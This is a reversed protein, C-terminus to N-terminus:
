RFERKIIKVCKILRSLSENRLNLYLILCDHAVGLFEENCVFNREKMFEFFGNYNFYDILFLLLDYDNNEYNNDMEDVIFNILKRKKM